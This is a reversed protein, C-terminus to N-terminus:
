APTGARPDAFWREVGAPVYAFGESLAERPVVADFIQFFGDALGPHLPYAEPGEELRPPRLLGLAEGDRRWVREFWSFTPGLAIKREEGIRSSLLGGALEERCRDRLAALEAEDFRKVRAEGGSRLRGA